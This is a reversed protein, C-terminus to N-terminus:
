PSDSSTCGERASAARTYSVLYRQRIGPLIGLLRDLKRDKRDEFLRAPSSTLACFDAERAVPV